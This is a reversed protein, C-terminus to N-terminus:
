FRESVKSMHLPNALFTNAEEVKSKIKPLEVNTFSRESIKMKKDVINQRNAHAM